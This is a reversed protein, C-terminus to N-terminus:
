RGPLGQPVHTIEISASEDVDGYIVPQPLGNDFIARYNFVKMVYHKRGYGDTETFRTGPAMADFATHIAENGHIVAGLPVQVDDIEVLAVDQSQNTM